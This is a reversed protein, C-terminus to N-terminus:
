IIFLILVTITGLAKLFSAAQKAVLIKFEQENTKEPDISIQGLVKDYSSDNLDDFLGWTIHVVYTEGEKLDYAMNKTTNTTLPRTFLVHAKNVHRQITQYIVAWGYEDTTINDDAQDIYIFDSSNTANVIQFPSACWKKM